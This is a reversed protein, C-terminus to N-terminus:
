GVTHSALVMVPRGAAELRGVAVQYEAEVGRAGAFLATLMKRADTGSLVRSEGARRMYSDPTRHCRWAPRTGLEGDEQFSVRFFSIL